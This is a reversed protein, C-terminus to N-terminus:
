FEYGLKLMAGSYNDTCEAHSKLHRLTYHIGVLFASRKEGIRLGLGPTLFGGDPISTGASVSWFPVVRRMNDSLINGRANVFLPMSLHNRTDRVNSNNPYYLAGIGVGVKIYQSFRYGNAFALGAMAVNRMNEMVTSGGGLEIACWYGRDEEAINIRRVPDEPMRIERQQAVATGLTMMSVVSLVIRKM